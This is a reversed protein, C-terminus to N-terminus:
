GVIGPRVEDSEEKSLESIIEKAEKRLHSLRILKPGIEKTIMGMEQMIKELRAIRETM